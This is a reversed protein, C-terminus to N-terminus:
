LMALSPLLDILEETCIGESVEWECVCNSPTIHSKYASTMYIMSLPVNLVRLNNIPNNEFEDLNLNLKASDMISFYILAV